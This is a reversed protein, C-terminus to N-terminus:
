VRVFFYYVLSGVLLISIVLAYFEIRIQAKAKTRIQTKILELRESDISTTDSNTNSQDNQSKAFQNKWLKKERRELKRRRLEKFRQNHASLRGFTGDVPM